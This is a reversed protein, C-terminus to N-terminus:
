PCVVTGSNALVSPTCGLGIAWHFFGSSRAHGWINEDRRSRRACSYSATWAGNYWCFPGSLTATSQNFFVSVPRRIGLATQQLGGMRPDTQGPWPGQQPDQSRAEVIAGSALPSLGQGQPASQIFLIGPRGEIAHTAHGCPQPLLAIGHVGLPDRPQHLREPQLGDSGFRPRGLRWRLV